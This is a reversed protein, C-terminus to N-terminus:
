LGGGDGLVDECVGEGIGRVGERRTDALQEGRKAEPLGGRGGVVGACGDQGACWQGRTGRVTAAGIERM